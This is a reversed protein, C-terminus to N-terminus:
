LKRRLSKQRGLNLITVYPFCEIRYIPGFSQPLIAFSSLYVTLKFSRLAWIRLSSKLLIRTSPNENITVAIKYQTKGWQM